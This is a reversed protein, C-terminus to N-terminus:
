SRGIVNMLHELEAKAEDPSSVTQTIEGEILKGYRKRMRHIQLRLKGEAIGLRDAVEPYPTANEGLPLFEALQDFLESNDALLYEGRLQATAAALVGTAWVHDFFADPTRSDAPECEYRQEADLDELSLTAKKSGGRKAAGDHRLQKSILRKLMALMFCRLRGNEERVANLSEHTVLNQFFVQTMDEADEPSFGYRRSYAYIPYWYQRCIEELAQAAEAEGGKQARRVLTWRTLPFPSNRSGEADHPSLSMLFFRPALCCGSGARYNLPFHWGRDGHFREM